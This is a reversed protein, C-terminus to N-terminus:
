NVFVLAELKSLSKELSALEAKGLYDEMSAQASDWLVL